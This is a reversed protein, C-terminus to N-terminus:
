NAIEVIEASDGDFILVQKPDNWNPRLRKYEEAVSGHHEELIRVSENSKVIYLKRDSSKAGLAELEPTLFVRPTLIDSSFPLTLGRWALAIDMPTGIPPKIIQIGTQERKRSARLMKILDEWSEPTYEVPLEFLFLEEEDVSMKVETANVILSALTRQLDRPSTIMQVDHEAMLERMFALWVADAKEWSQSLIEQLTRAM